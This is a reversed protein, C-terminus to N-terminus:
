KFIIARTDNTWTSPYQSIDIISKSYPVNYGAVYGQKVLLSQTVDFKEIVYYFEECMWVLFLRKFLLVFPFAVLIRSTNKPFSSKLLTNRWTSLLGSATTLEVATCRSFPRGTPHTKPWEPRLKPESGFPSQITTCSGTIAPITPISRPKWLWWGLTLTISIMKARWIELDRVSAWERQELLRLKFTSSTPRTCESCWHIALRHILM